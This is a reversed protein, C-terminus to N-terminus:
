DEKRRGRRESRFNDFQVLLWVLLEYGVTWVVVAAVLIELVLLPVLGWRLVYLTEGWFFGIM